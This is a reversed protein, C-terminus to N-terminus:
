GQSLLNFWQGISVFDVASLKGAVLAARHGDGSGDVFNYLYSPEVGFFVMRALIVFFGADLM